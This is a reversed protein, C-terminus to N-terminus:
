LNKFRSFSNNKIFVNKILHKRTNRIIKKWAIKWGLTTSKCYAYNCKTCKRLEGYQNKWVTKFKPRGRHNHKM